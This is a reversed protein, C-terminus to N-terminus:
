QQMAVDVRTVDACTMGRSTLGLSTLMRQSQSGGNVSTLIKQFPRDQENKRMSESKPSQKKM